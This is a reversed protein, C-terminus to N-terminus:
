GDTTRLAEALKRDAAALHERVGSRTIGEILAISRQSLGREAAEWCRYQRDTLLDRALQRLESPTM